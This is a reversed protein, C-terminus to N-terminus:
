DAFIKHFPVIELCWSFTGRWVSTQSYVKKDLYLVFTSLYSTFNGVFLFPIFFAMLGYIVLRVAEKYRKEALWIFGFLAPYLKFGASIAVFILGLERLFKSNSDKLVIGGWLFFMTYMVPNGREFAYLFFPYSFLLVGIMINKKLNSNTKYAISM